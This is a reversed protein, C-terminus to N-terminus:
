KERAVQPARRHSFAVIMRSGGCGASDRPPARRDPTGCYVVAACHGRSKSPTPTLSSLSLPPSLSSLSLPSAGM